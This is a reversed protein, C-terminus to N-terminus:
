KQDMGYIHILPTYLILPLCVYAKQTIACMYCFGLWGHVFEIKLHTMRRNRDLPVSLLYFFSLNGCIFALRKRFKYKYKICLICIDLFANQKYCCRWHFCDVDLLIPYRISLFVRMCVRRLCCTYILIFCLVVLVM